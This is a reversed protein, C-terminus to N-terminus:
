QVARGVLELLIALVLFTLARDFLRIKHALAQENIEIDRALDELM